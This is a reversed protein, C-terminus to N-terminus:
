RNHQSQHFFSVMIPHEVVWRSPNQCHVWLLPEIVAVEGFLDYGRLGPTSAGCKRLIDCSAWPGLCLIEIRHMYCIEKHM